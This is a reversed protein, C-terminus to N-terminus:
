HSKSTTYGSFKARISLIALILACALAVWQISTETNWHRLSIATLAWAGVLAFTIMRRKSLVFSYILTAVVMMLIAWNAESLGSQWDVKALYASINAVTAVTIWGAYLSIPWWLWRKHSQNVDSTGIKLKLVASLLLALIVLMAVVSEGTRETLWLWIWLANGVNALILRFGLQNFFSTEKDQFACKIQYGANITLALYILGWISFAFGSPTFLNDYEASLSGVSNDNIGQANAYYNWYIVIALIIANIVAWFRPKIFTM